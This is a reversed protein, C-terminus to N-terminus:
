GIGCVVEDGFNIIGARGRLPSGTIADLASNLDTSASSLTDVSSRTNDIENGFAESAGAVDSTPDNASAKDIETVLDDAADTLNDVADPLNGAVSSDFVDTFRPMVEDGIEDAADIMEDEDAINVGFQPFIIGFKADSTKQSLLSPNYHPIHAMKASAVGTSGMALGRADM